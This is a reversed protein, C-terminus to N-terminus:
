AEMLQFSEGREGVIQASSAIAGLKRNLYSVYLWVTDSAADPEDEWVHSLLYETDLPHEVNMILTRLLEFEKTSLRVANECSLEFNAEKLKLDAFSLDGGSYQTRRRTMARVRALLEKMAFPKTLYDDAGADLGNVRDDVESKATLLLVPTIINSERMERLVQIGDRKPMMIDLIIADYGNERIHSLAEEGDYVPDAEYGEHELVACIARNLDKTDEALLIKM